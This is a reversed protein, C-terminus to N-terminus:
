RKMEKIQDETLGELWEALATPFTNLDVYREPIFGDYIAGPLHGYEVESQSPYREAIWFDGWWDQKICFEWLTFWQAPKTFNPNSKHVPDLHQCGCTDCHYISDKRVHHWVIGMNEGLHEVIIQSPTKNM